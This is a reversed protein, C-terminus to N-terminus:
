LEITYGFLLNSYQNTNYNTNSYYSDYYRLERYEYALDLRGFETNFSLGFTYSKSSPGSTQIAAGDPIFLSPINRYGAMLSILEIPTYEAGIRITHRDPLSNFTSNPSTFEATAKSFAAFEYDISFLFNDVPAYSVGLNIISPINLKDIGNKATVNESISDTYTITYDWEKELTYPLDIKAGVKFQEFDFQFGFNFRTNSYNSNGKVEDYVDTYWYRFRQQNILHFTGIRELYLLDDSSGWSLNMGLGINLIDAVKYSLALAVNDMKGSSKRYYNSWNVVLTDVGNVRGIDGYADYGIHPDLYTHNRDYDEINIINNYAASVVFEEGSLSFPVAVAINNFSFKSEEEEWDAAEESYPDLGLTPATIIYSSDILNDDTWLREHDYMGDQDPSPVYLGELYFPLTVFLRNPRYNQNERWSNTSYNASATIQINKINSIGAPNYFMLSVDGSLATVAGGLATAKVGNDNLNNLGQFAFQDGRHQSFILSSGMLLTILIIIKTKMINKLM